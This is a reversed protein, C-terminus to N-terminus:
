LRGIDSLGEKLALVLILGRSTALRDISGSAIKDVLEIAGGAVLEIVGGATM